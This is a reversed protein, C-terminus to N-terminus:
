PAVFFQAEIIDKVADSQAFAIFEKALGVPTNRVVLNLQRSFQYRGKAM